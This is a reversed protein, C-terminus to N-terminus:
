DNSHEETPSWPTETSDNQREKMMLNAIHYATRAVFEGIREEEKKMAILASPDLSVLGQMAKAAFYDRLTIDNADSPSTM